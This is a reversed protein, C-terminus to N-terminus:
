TVGAHGCSFAARVVVAATVAAGGRARTTWCACSWVRRVGDRFLLRRFDLRFGREGLVLTAFADPQKLPGGGLAADLRWTGERQREEAVAGEYKAVKRTATPVAKSLDAYETWQAETWVVCAGDTLTLDVSFGTSKRTPTGEVVTRSYTSQAYKM